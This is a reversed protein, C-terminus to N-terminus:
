RSRIEWFTLDAGFRTRWLRDSLIVQRGSNAIENSETFEHGLEPNLGLVKFYGATIDFGHLQEPQGSDGSLQLDDRM